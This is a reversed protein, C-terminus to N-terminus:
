FFFCPQTPFSSAPDMEIGLLDIFVAEKIKRLFVFCVQVQGGSLKSCFPEGMLLRWAVHNDSIGFPFFIFWLWLFTLSCFWRSKLFAVHLCWMAKLLLPTLLRTWHDCKGLTYPVPNSGWYQASFGQHPAILPVGGSTLEVCLMPVSGPLSRMLFSHSLAWSLKCSQLFVNVCLIIFTVRSNGGQSFQTHPANGPFSRNLLAHKGPEGAGACVTVLVIALGWKGWYSAKGGVSM